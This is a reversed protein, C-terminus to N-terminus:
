ERLLEKIKAQVNGSKLLGEGVLIGRVGAAKLAKVQQDSYIGSESIVLQQKLEPLKEMVSLTTNLDIKLTDLDRNNIGIIRAGADQAKKVEEQTHCEVLASLGLKRTLAVFAKLDKEALIRVILLVADAGALRSEYIQLEDIIFDKRLVPIEVAEEVATLDKLSGYFYKDETLVSVAAAGAEEYDQALEVPDYDPMIIGASPSAKKVEAILALQHQPFVSSFDFTAAEHEIAKLAQKPDLRKKLVAIEQQKHQVIQDLIM